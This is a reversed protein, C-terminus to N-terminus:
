VAGGFVEGVEAADLVNVSDFCELDRLIKAGLESAFKSTGCATLLLNRIEGMKERNADLGGLKVGNYSMRGGFGLARAIAEPQEFCEKLFFHPYPHPTLLIEHDPAVELRSVDLSNTKANVVGIEGDKLSIFNKTYRSFAATESAIYTKGNGM